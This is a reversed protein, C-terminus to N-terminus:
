PDHRVNVTQLEICLVCGSDDLIAVVGERGRANLIRQHASLHSVFDESDLLGRADQDNLVDCSQSLSLVIKTETVQVRIEVIFTAEETLYHLDLDRSWGPDVASLFVSGMILFSLADYDLLVLSGFLVIM